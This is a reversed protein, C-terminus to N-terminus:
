SRSVHKDIERDVIDNWTCGVSRVVFAVGFLVLNVRLMEGPLPTNDKISAAFLNGLLYPVYIFLVGAPKHLRILEAYPVWIRPLWSLLAPTPNSYIQFDCQAKESQLLLSTDLSM